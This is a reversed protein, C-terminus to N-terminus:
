RFAPGRTLWGLYRIGVRSFFATLAITTEREGATALLRAEGARTSMNKESMKCGRLIIPHFVSGALGNELTIFNNMSCQLM